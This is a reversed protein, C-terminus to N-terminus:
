WRLWEGYMNPQEGRIYAEFTRKMVASWSLDRMEGSRMKEHDFEEGTLFVPDLDPFDREPDFPTWRSVLATLATDIELAPTRM